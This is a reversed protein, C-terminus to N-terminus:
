RAVKPPLEDRVRLAKVPNEGETTFRYDEGSDEINRRIVEQSPVYRGANVMEQHKFFRFDRPLDGVPVYETERATLHVQNELVERVYDKNSQFITLEPFGDPFMDAPDRNEMKQILKRDAQLQGIEMELLRDSLSDPDGRWQGIHTM